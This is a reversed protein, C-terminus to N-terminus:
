IGIMKCNKKKRHNLDGLPKTPYIILIAQQMEFHKTLTENMKKLTM